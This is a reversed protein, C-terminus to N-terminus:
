INAQYGIGYINKISDKPLKKRLNKILAKLSDRKDSEFDDWLLVILEDYSFIKNSDNFLINLLTREFKTLPILTSGQYFEQTDCHWRYNEKLVIQNCAQVKFSELEYVARDLAEKLDNRSAPKIIYKTLKLETAKLLADIDQHATLMIARTTHDYERIKHLLELGNLHPINIDIILIDPKKEYYITYAERGDSAEYVEKFYRSLYTTYNARISPEDEIFLLTYPSKLEYM